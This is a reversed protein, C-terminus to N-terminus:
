VYVWLRYIPREWVEVVGILAHVVQDAPSVESRLQLPICIGNMELEVECSIGLGTNLGFWEVSSSSGRPGVM